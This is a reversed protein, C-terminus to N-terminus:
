ENLFRRVRRIKAKLKKKKDKYHKRLKGFTIKSLLKCRYYNFRNKPYNLVDRLLEKTNDTLASTKKLNSYIIEEYFPTQRAYQWWIEALKIDPNKWPKIASAYHILYPANYSATYKQYLSVNLQRNLDKVYYPIHWLVNWKLDLKKYHGDIVANLVCQDVYVPTQIEKLKDICKTTFNQQLLKPINLLLVGAQFYDKPNQMHLTNILYDATKQNGLSVNNEICRLIEVDPVAGVAYHDLSCHYLEAIDHCVVIDCDLYLVKEYEKFIDPIFFRCYTALTFYGNLFFFSQDYQAFFSKIPIFRISFDKDKLLSIQEKNRASINYDLICVDYKDKKNKHKKISSVAVALYPAYSDDSSFCINIGKEAFCPSIYQLAPEDKIKVFCRNIAYNGRSIFCGTLREAVYGPMRQNYFSLKSYDTKKHFEFLIEFLWRCYKFFIDKKMIFMNYFYGGKENMYNRFETKDKESLVSYLFDYPPKGHNDMFQTKLNIKWTEYCATIDYDVFKELAEVPFPRRYHM